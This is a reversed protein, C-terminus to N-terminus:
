FGRAAWSCADAAESRGLGAGLGPLDCNPRGKVRQRSAVRAAGEGQGEVSPAVGAERLHM